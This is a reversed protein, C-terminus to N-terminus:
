STTYNGAVTGSSNLVVYASYDANTASYKILWVNSFNQDLATQNSSLTPYFMATVYTNNYGYTSVLNTVATINKSYSQAIAVEPSSIDYGSLSPNLGYIKCNGVYLNDLSPVLGTAPYDYETIFLTPCPRTANYVISLIINYSGSEVTSNSVDIVTVNASPNAQKVDNIVFQEAQAATPKSSSSHKIFLFVGSFIIVLVVVIIAVKEILEM